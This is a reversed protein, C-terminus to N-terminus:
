RAEGAKRVEDKWTIGAQGAWQMMGYLFKKAGEDWRSEDGEVVLFGNEERMTLLPTGDAAPVTITWPPPAAPLLASSPIDSTIVEPPAVRQPQAARPALRMKMVEPKQPPYQSVM